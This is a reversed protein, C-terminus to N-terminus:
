FPGSALLNRSRRLRLWMRDAPSSEVRSARRRARSRTCHIHCGPSFVGGQWEVFATYLHGGRGEGAPRPLNAGARHGEPSNAHVLGRPRCACRAGEDECPRLAAAPPGTEFRVLRGTGAWITVRQAPSLSEPPAPRPRSTRRRVKSGPGTRVRAAVSLAGLDDRFANEAEAWRGDDKRGGTVTARPGRRTPQRSAAKCSPWIPRRPPPQKRSTADRPLRCDGMCAPGPGTREPGRRGFAAVSAARM